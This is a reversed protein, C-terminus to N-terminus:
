NDQKPVKISKEKLSEHVRRILEEEHPPPCTPLDVTLIPQNLLALFEKAYANTSEKLSFVSNLQGRSKKDLITRAALAVRTRLWKEKTTVGESYLLPGVDKGFYKGLLGIAPMLHTQAIDDAHVPEPLSLSLSKILAIAADLRRTEAVERQLAIVEESIISPKMGATKQLTVIKKRQVDRASEENEDAQRSAGLLCAMVSLTLGVVFANFTVSKKSM